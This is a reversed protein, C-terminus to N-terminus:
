SVSWCHKLLGRSSKPGHWMVATASKLSLTLDVQCLFGDLLSSDKYLKPVQARWKETRPQCTSLTREMEVTMLKKWCFPLNGIMHISQGLWSPCRQFHPLVLTLFFGLDNVSDSLISTSVQNFYFRQSEILSLCQPYGSTGCLLTTGPDLHAAQPWRQCLASTCHGPFFLSPSVCVLSLSDM